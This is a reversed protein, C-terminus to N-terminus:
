NFNSSWPFGILTLYQILEEENVSNSGFMSSLDYPEVIDRNVNGDVAAYVFCGDVLWTNCESIMQDKQNMQVVKM